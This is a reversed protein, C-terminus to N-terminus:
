VWDCCLKDVIALETATFVNETPTAPMDRCSFLSGIQWSHRIGVTPKRAPLLVARVETNAHGPEIRYQTVSRYVSYPPPPRRKPPLVTTTKQVARPHMTQLPAPPHPGGRVCQRKRASIDATICHSMADGFLTDDNDLESADWSRKRSVMVFVAAAVPPASPNAM